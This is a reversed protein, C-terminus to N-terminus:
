PEGLVAKRKNMKKKRKKEGKEHPPKRPSMKERVNEVM